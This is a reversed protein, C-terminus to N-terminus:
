DSIAEGRQQKSPLSTYQHGRNRGHVWEQPVSPVLLHRLLFQEPIDELLPIHVEVSTVQHQLVVPVKHVESVANSVREPVNGNTASM